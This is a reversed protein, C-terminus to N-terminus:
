MPPCTRNISANRMPTIDVSNISMTVCCQVHIYLAATVPADSRTAHASMPSYHVHLNLDPCHTYNSRACRARGRATLGRKPFAPPSCHLVTHADISCHSLVTCTLVTCHLVTCRMGNPRVCTSANTCTYLCVCARVRLCACSRAGCLSVNRETVCCHVDCHPATSDHVNWPTVIYLQTVGHQVQTCFM